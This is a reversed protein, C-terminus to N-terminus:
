KAVKVAELQEKQDIKQQIWKIYHGRYENRLKWWDNNGLKGRCNKAGCLCKEIKSSAFEHVVFTAYDISVQEGAKIERRAAVDEDNIMWCNPDCCHNIFYDIQQHVDENEYPGVYTYEEIETAYKEFTTKYPEPLNKVQPRSLKICSDNWKTFILEGPKIDQTTFVGFFDPAIEKKILKKNYMFNIKPGHDKILLNELMRFTPKHHHFV